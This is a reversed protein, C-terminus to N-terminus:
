ADTEVRREVDMVAPGLGDAFGAGDDQGSGVGGVGFPEHSV